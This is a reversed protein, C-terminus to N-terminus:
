MSFATGLFISRHRITQLVEMCTSYGFLVILIFVYKFHFKNEYDSLPVKKNSDDFDMVVNSLLSSSRASSPAAQPHVHSSPANKRGTHPSPFQSSHAGLFFKKEFM